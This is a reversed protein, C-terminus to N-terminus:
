ECPLSSELFWAGLQQLKGGFCLKCSFCSIKGATTPKRRDRQSAFVCTPHVLLLKGQCRCGSECGMQRPVTYRPSKLCCRTCFCGQEVPCSQAPEWAPPFSLFSWLRTRPCACGVSCKCLTKGVARVISGLDPLHREWHVVIVVERMRQQECCGAGWLQLGAM